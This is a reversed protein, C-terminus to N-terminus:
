QFTVEGHRFIGRGRGSFVGSCVWSGATLIGKVGMERKRINLGDWFLNKDLMARSSKFSQINGVSEM